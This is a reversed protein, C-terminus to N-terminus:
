PVDVHAVENERVDVRALVTTTSRGAEYVTRQLVLRGRPVSHLRFAGSEDPTM